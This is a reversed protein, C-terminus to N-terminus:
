HFLIIYGRTTNNKTKTTYWWKINEEGIGEFVTYIYM